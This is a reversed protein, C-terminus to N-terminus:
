GNLRFPSLPVPKLPVTAQRSNTAGLLDDGAVADDSRGDALWLRISWFALLVSSALWVYYGPLLTSSLDPPPPRLQVEWRQIVPVSLALLTAVLGCSAAIRWRGHHFFYLGLWLAPNALWYPYLDFLALASGAFAQIGWLTGFNGSTKLAPLSFSILYCLLIVRFRRSHSTAARHLSHEHSSCRSADNTQDVQRGLDANVDNSGL